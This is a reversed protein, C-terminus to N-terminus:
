IFRASNPTEDKPDFKRIYAAAKKVKDAEGKIGIYSAYGVEKQRKGSGYEGTIPNNGTRIEIGPGTWFWTNDDLKANSSAGVMKLLKTFNAATDFGTLDFGWEVESASDSPNKDKKNRKHNEIVADTFERITKLDSRLAETTDHFAENNDGESLKKLVKRGFDYRDESDKIWDEIDGDSEFEAMFSALYPGDLAEFIKSADDKLIDCLAGNTERLFKISPM